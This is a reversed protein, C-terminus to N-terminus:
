YPGWYNQARGALAFRRVRSIGSPTLACKLHVGYLNFSSEPRIVRERVSTPLDPLEVELPVFLAKRSESRMLPDFLHPGHKRILASVIASYPSLNLTEAGEGAATAEDLAIWLDTFQIKLLKTLEFVNLALRRLDKPLQEPKWRQKIEQITMRQQDCDRDSRNLLSADTLRRVESISLEANELMAKVQFAIRSTSWDVDDTKYVLEHTAISWAHQLLTKVQV